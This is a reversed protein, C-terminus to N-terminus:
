LPPPRCYLLGLRRVEVEFFFIHLVGSSVERRSGLLLSPSALRLFEIGRCSMDLFLLLRLLRREGLGRTKRLPPHSEFMGRLLLDSLLLTGDSCSILRLERPSIWISRRRPVRMGLFYLNFCLFQFSFEGSSRTPILPTHVVQRVGRLTSLHHLLRLLRKISIPPEIPSPRIQFILAPFLRGSLHSFNLSDYDLPFPCRGRALLKQACFFAARSVM